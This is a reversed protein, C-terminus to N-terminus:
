SCRSLCKIQPFIIIKSYIPFETPFQINITSNPYFFSLPVITFNITALRSVGYDSSFFNATKFENAM